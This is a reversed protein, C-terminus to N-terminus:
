GHSAGNGSEAKPGAQGPQRLMSVEHTIDMGVPCWTICRGCGVCGLVGFQDQWAALKHHVWQRYRAEPAARVNGGHIYSFELNFCTDWRRARWAGLGDLDQGDYLTHCFCTPCVLTCNGCTLCRRAANQWHPHERNAYLLEKLGATDLNRGMRGAADCLMRGATEVEERAPQHEVQEMLEVGLASGTEVLFYHREPEVVETLALDFGDRAQPGTGMSACFCTGGPQTCNVVIIVTERRRAFYHVDPYTREIFIKDLIKIAALECPRVGLLALPPAQDTRAQVTFGSGERRLNLLTLQPPHLYRKWSDHGLSYGFLAPGDEQHLRFTGAEREERLGRPLQDTGQLDAYILSGNQLTPGLVRRGQRSLAEVLGSLGQPTIIVPANATM